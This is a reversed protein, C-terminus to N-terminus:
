ITLPTFNEAMASELGTLSDISSSVTFSKNDVMNSIFKAVLKIKHQSLMLFLYVTCQFSM